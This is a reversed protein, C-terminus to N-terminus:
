LGKAIEADWLDEIFDKYFRELMRATKYDRDSVRHGSDWTSLAVRVTRFINEWRPHHDYPDIRKAAESMFAIAALFSPFKFQRVMEVRMEPAGPRTDDKIPSEVIEWRPLDAKMKELERGKIAVPRFLPSRPYPHSDDEIFEQLKRLGIQNRMELVLANMDEAFYDNHIEVYQRSALAAISDPLQELTPFTAGEVLVPIVIKKGGLAREVEIRVWDNDIELRRKLSAPDQVSAWTPDIIALLVKTDRLAQETRQPFDTGPKFDARDLFVSARPFSACIREHIRDVIFTQTRRYSIFIDTM